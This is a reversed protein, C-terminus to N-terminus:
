QIRKFVITGSASDSVNGASNTFYSYNLVVNTNSHSLLTSNYDRTDDFSSTYGYYTVSTENLVWGKYYTSMTDIDFYYINYGKPAYPGYAEWRLTDKSGNPYERFQIIEYKGVEIDGLFGLQKKKNCGFLLLLTLLLFKSNPSRLSKKM